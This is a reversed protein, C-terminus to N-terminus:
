FFFYLESYLVEDDASKDKAETDYYNVCLQNNKALFENYEKKIPSTEDLIKFKDLVAQYQERKEPNEKM